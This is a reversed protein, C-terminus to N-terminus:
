FYRNILCVKKLVIKRSQLQTVLMVSSARALGAEKVGVVVRALHSVAHTVLVKDVVVAGGLLAELEAVLTRALFSLYPNNITLKKLVM